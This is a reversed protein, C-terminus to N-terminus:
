SSVRAHSEIEKHHPSGAPGRTSCQAKLSCLTKKSCENIPALYTAAQQPLAIMVNELTAESRLEAELKLALFALQEAGVMQSSTKLSLVADFSGEWDGTTLAVRLREIRRPLCAIFNAVFVSTYGNGDDALEERLRELVLQDVLPLQVDAPHTMAPWEQSAPLDHSPAQIPTM